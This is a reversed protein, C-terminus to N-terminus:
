KHNIYYIYIFDFFYREHQVLPFDSSDSGPDSSNAIEIESENESDTNEIEEPPNERNFNQYFSTETAPTRDNCIFARDDEDSAESSSRDSGEVFGSGGTLNISSSAVMEDAIQNTEVDDTVDGLTDTTNQYAPEHLDTVPQETLATEYQLAVMIDVTEGEGDISQDNPEDTNQEEPVTPEENNDEEDSSMRTNMYAELFEANLVESKKKNFDAVTTKTIM